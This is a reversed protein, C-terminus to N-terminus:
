LAPEDTIDFVRLVDPIRCCKELEQIGDGLGTLEMLKLVEGWVALYFGVLLRSEQFLQLTRVPTGPEKKIGWASSTNGVTNYLDSSNESLM